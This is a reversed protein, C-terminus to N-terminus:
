MLLSDLTGFGSKHRLFFAVLAKLFVAYTFVNIGQRLFVKSGQKLQYVLWFVVKGQSSDNLTNFVSFKFALNQKDLKQLSVFFTLFHPLQTKESVFREVFQNHAM